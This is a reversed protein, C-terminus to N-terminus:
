EARQILKQIRDSTHRVDYAHLGVENIISMMKKKEEIAEELTGEVLRVESGPAKQVLTPIDAFYVTGIKAYGGVTQRDNLLIIPQGDSAVQISGLQVPESIIDYNTKVQLPEGELRMGMRDSMNSIEYTNLLTEHINKFRNYQRGPIFRITSVKDIFHTSLRQTKSHEPKKFELIDDKRLTRGEVGGIGIKTHTAYSDNVKDLKFGNKVTLYTRYGNKVAKFTLIDGAEANHVARNEVPTDNLEALMNGGTIVFACAEEFKFIGGQMTMEISMFEENGLLLNGFMVARYDMGGSPSLGINQYGFRGLDQITTFLGPNIVQLGM